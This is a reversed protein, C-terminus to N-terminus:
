GTFYWRESVKGNNKAKSTERRAMGAAEMKELAKVVDEPKYRRLRNKIVGVKEGHDKSIYKTIKAMLTKDTGHTEDNSMVLRLKEDVDRKTIAFAWRVHELTRVGSPAALILSIKAIMEYGRRVVAELGTREKQMEAYEITWELAKDLAKVADPATQVPVRDGFHEVRDNTVSFHGGDFLGRLAQRMDDDMPRKQFPRKPWPNSNHERVLLARGLFGSTAQDEDIITDFTSPTTFGILSLFPKDLGQDLTDLQAQLREAKLARAGSPDENNDVAKLHQALESQMAKRVDEKVDGSLLAKGDAKSYLSMLTGILGELYAASGKKQANVAKGLEIGLEDIIYYAAQHRILNRMVEQQSKQFGHAAASIGAEVMIKQMAQLVAEKGSSSDAVGFAFLNATVGDLDDTYRLGAVNGVAVLAAATALHERPYRCQDDIWRKVDGVFGPPRLLDVASTDLLDSEDTNPTADLESTDAEFTVARRWGGVEAYHILTGITVPMSAKGFSHWRKELDESGPYKSGRSSWADWVAFASGQSADHCAMGVRVWQEHDCDPDIHAMMDALDDHTVDMVAGNYETRHYEPKRLMDVLAAPADDIDDPNGDLILYRNGSAHMSGPGVVFAGPGSKVDIGDYGKLKGALAVGEPALFYFHRSGHGSGTAVILGADEIEPVDEILRALSEVGGSRADVDVVMLGACLVAYGTDLQGTEEMLEIQEDSWLPTSKWGSSRPVKYKEKDTLEEGDHGTEGLLPFFRIDADRFAKYHM